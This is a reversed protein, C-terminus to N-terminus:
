GKSLYRDSVQTEVTIPIDPCWPAFATIMVHEQEAQVAAVHEPPCATVIEDHVFLATYAGAQARASRPDRQLEDLLWLAAGAGDQALGSFRTNCAESFFLGSRVRDTRHQTITCKGGRTLEGHLDFYRQTQWRDLWMSKATRAEDLTMAVGMGAAYTVLKPPGMGGLMGFNVPKCFQRKPKHQKPDFDAYDIGLFYTALDRHLDRGARIADGMVSSGFLDIEVQAFTCLEIGAYDTTVFVFGPPPVLCERYGGMRPLNHFNPSRMSTRGNALPAHYGTRVRDHALRGALNSRLTRLSKASAYMRLPLDTVGALSAAKLSPFGKATRPVPIGQAQVRARASKTSLKVKGKKFEGLGHAIAYASAQAIADDLKGLVADRRAADIHIPHNGARHLALARRNQHQEDAFEPRQEHFIRLTAWADFIAYRAADVPWDAVPTHRLESYRLRWPDSKDIGGVNHIAAVTELSYQEADALMGDAIAILRERVLVDRIRGERYAAHLPAALSPDWRILVDVDFPANAFVLL